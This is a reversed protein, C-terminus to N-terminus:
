GFAALFWYHWTTTKRACNNDGRGEGADGLGLLEPKGCGTHGGHHLADADILIEVGLKRQFERELVFGALSHTQALIEALLRHNERQDIVLAGPEAIM